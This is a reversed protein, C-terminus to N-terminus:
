APVTATVFALVAVLGLATARRSIRLEDGYETV